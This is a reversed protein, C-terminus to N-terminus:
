ADALSITEISEETTATNTTDTEQATANDTSDQNVQERQIWFDKAEHTKRWQGYDEIAKKKKTEDEIYKVVELFRVHARTKDYTKFFNFFDIHLTNSNNSHLRNVVRPLRKTSSKKPM